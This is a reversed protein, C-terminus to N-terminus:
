SSKIFLCLSAEMSPVVKVDDDESPLVYLLKPPNCEPVVIPPMFPMVGRGGEGIERKSISCSGLNANSFKGGPVPNVKTM